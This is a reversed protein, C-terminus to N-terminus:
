IKGFMRLIVTYATYVHAIPPLNSYSFTSYESMVFAVFDSGSGSGCGLLGLRGIHLWTPYDM